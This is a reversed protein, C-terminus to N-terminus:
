TTFAIMHSLYIPQVNESVCVSPQWAFHCPSQLHLGAIGCCFSLFYKNQQNIRKCFLVLEICHIDVIGKLQPWSIYMNFLIVIFADPYETHEVGFWASRYCEGM